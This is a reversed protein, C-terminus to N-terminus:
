SMTQPVSVSDPGAINSVVRDLKTRNCFHLPQGINRVEGRVALPLSGGGVVARLAGQRPQAPPIPRARGVARYVRLGVGGFETELWARKLLGLGHGSTITGGLNLGLPM